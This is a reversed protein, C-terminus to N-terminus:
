SLRIHFAKSNPTLVKANTPGQKPVDKLKTGAKSKEWAGTSYSEREEHIM